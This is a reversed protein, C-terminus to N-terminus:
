LRQTQFRNKLTSKIRNIKTAVNTETIGLIESIEKYSKEELYLIMIARDLEKLENIYRYLANINRETEDIQDSDHLLSEQAQLPVMRKNRAVSKRYWSIAVNLAIRYIWTSIQFQQKYRPYSKWVQIIMEQILDKRDEEQPCYARAVKHFIGINKEIIGNFAERRDLGSM